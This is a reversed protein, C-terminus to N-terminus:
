QAPGRRARWPSELPHNGFALRQRLGLLRRRGLPWPTPKLAFGQSNEKLRKGRYCSRNRQRRRPTQEMTRHHNLDSFRFEGLNATCGGRMDSTQARNITDPDHGSLIGRIMGNIEERKENVLIAVRLPNPQRADSQNLFQAVREDGTIIAM